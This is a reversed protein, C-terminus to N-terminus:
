KIVIKKGDVVYIGVPLNADQLNSVVKVFNGNLGYIRVAHATASTSVRNLGDTFNAQYVVDHAPMSVYTDGDWGNFSINAAEPVWTFEPVPQGYAVNYEKLLTDGYFYSVKYTNVQFIADYVLDHSPVVSMIEPSWGVFTYGEKEPSVPVVIASNYDLLNEELVNGDIMFSIKYQNVKWLATFSLDNAPMSSPVEKDWGVFTYGEKVPSAPVTIQSSYDVTNESLIQGDSLFSVKYQNVKWLATFSLDNAPMSSPVEKDWGVFTYGTKAPVSPANIASGFAVSSTTTEDDVIFSLNFNRAKFSATYSAASSGVTVQMPNETSGNSWGAFEYGEDPTATMTLQTGLQYMNDAAMPTLSVKGNASASVTVQYKLLKQYEDETVLTLQDPTGESVPLYSQNPNLYYKGDPDDWGGTVYDDVHLDQTSNVFGIKGESTVGFVRMTKADYLTHADKSNPRFDNCFYVGKLLNASPKTGKSPEYLTIKNKSVDTSSCEVLVPTSAPIIQGQPIEACVAMKQEADVKTVVYAKMGESLSFPYAAYYPAYHKGNITKTPKIAVYNETSNNIPIIDWNRLSGTKSTGVSHFKGLPTAVKNALNEDDLFKVLGGKSAYVQYHGDSTAKVNVLYQILGYM